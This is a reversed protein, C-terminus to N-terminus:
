SSIEPVAASFPDLLDEMEVAATTALAHVVLQISTYLICRSHIQVMVLVWCTVNGSKGTDYM